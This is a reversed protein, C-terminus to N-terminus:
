ARAARRRRSVGAFGCAIVGAWLGASAPEPISTVATLFAGSGSEASSISGSTDRSASLVFVSYDHGAALDASVATTVDFSM